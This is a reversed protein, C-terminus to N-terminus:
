HGMFQFGLGKRVRLVCSLISGSYPVEATVLSSRGSWPAVQDYIRGMAIALVGVAKPMRLQVNGKAAAEFIQFDVTGEALRPLCGALDQDLPGLLNGGTEFRVGRWFLLGWFLRRGIKM